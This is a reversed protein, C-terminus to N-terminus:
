STPEQEDMLMEVTQWDRWQIAEAIETEQEAAPLNHRELMAATLETTHIQWQTPHSLPHQNRRRLFDELAWAIDGIAPKNGEDDYNVIVIFARRM